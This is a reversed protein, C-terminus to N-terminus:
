KKGNSVEKSSNPVLEVVIKNNKCGLYASFFSADDETRVEVVEDVLHQLLIVDGERLQQISGIQMELPKLQVSLTLM